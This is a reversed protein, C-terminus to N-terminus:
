NVKKFDYYNLSLTIVQNNITYTHWNPLDKKLNFVYCWVINPSVNYILILEYGVGIGYPWPVYGDDRWTAYLFRIIEGVSLM